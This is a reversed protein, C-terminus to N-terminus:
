VTMYVFIARRQAETIFGADRLGLVYGAMRARDSDSHTYTYRRRLEEVMSRINKPLAELTQKVM